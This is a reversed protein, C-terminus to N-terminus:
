AGDNGGLAGLFFGEVDSIDVPRYRVIARGSFIRCKESFAAIGIRFCVVVSLNPHGFVVDSSLIRCPIKPGLVFCSFQLFSVPLLARSAPLLFRVRGRGPLSDPGERM